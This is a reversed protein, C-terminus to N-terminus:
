GTRDLPHVSPNGHGINISIAQRFNVETKQLDSLLLCLSVVHTHCAHIYTHCNRAGYCTVVGPGTADLFGHGRLMHCGRAEYCTVVGPGTVHAVGQGRLLGM